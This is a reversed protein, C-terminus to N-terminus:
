GPDPPHPQRNVGQRHDHRDPEVEDPLADDETGVGVGPRNGGDVADDDSELGVAPIRVCTHAPAHEHLPGGPPEDVAGVEAGEIVM